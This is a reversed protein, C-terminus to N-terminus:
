CCHQLHRADPATPEIERLVEGGCGVLLVLHAHFSVDLETEHTSYHDLIVHVDRRVPLWQGIDRPRHTSHRKGEDGARIAGDDGRSGDNNMGHRDAKRM